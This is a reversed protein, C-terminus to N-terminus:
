KIVRRPRLMLDTLVRGDDLRRVFRVSYGQSGSRLETRVYLCLTVDASLELSDIFALENMVADMASRRSTPTSGPLPKFKQSLGLLRSFTSQSRISAVDTRLISDDTYREMLPQTERVSAARISLSSGLRMLQANVTVDFLQSAGVYFLQGESKKIEVEVRGAGEAQWEWTGLWASSPANLASAFSDTNPPLSAFEPAPTTDIFRGPKEYLRAQSWAHAIAVNPIPLPINGPSIDLWGSHALGPDTGMDHANSDYQFLFPTQYSEGGTNKDASVDYEINGWCRTFGYYPNKWHIFVIDPLPVAPAEPHKDDKARLVQYRLEGMTGTWLGDSDTRWTVTQRASITDPPRVIWEGDLADTDPRRQLNFRTDNTFHMTFERASM